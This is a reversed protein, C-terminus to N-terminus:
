RVVLSVRTRDLGVVDAVLASRARGHPNKTVSGNHDPLCVVQVHTKEKERGENLPRTKENTNEDHFTNSLLAPLTGILVVELNKVFVIPKSVVADRVDGNYIVLSVCLM